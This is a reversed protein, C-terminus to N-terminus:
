FKCSRRLFLVVEQLLCLLICGVASPFILYWLQLQHFKPVDIFLLPLGAAPPHMSGTLQMFAISAALATGRALWGPGFLALAAIGMAACGVHAVFMNYKQAAPTTPTAFLVACVAGFPAITFMLGMPEVLKDLYSMGLMAVFAGAAPWVIDSIPPSPAPSDSSPSPVSSAAASSALVPTLWRRRQLRAPMAPLPLMRAGILGDKLGLSHLFLRRTLSRGCPSASSTHLAVTPTYSTSPFQQHKLSCLSSTPVIAASDM